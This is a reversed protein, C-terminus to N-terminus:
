NKTRLNNLSMLLAGFGILVAAFKVMPGLIPIIGVLYYIVLGVVFTGLPSANKVVKEGVWSMVYIRSIYMLLFYLIFLLIGLPIGVVTIMLTVALIPILILGLFGIALSFLTRTEITNVVSAHFKPLFYILLAGIVLTTVFSLGTTFIDFGTIFAQAGRQSVEPKQVENRQVEGSISAEPSIVAEEDSWYTLNGAVAAASSLRLNGVGAEINGGVTNAINLNGVGARINGAVPAFIDVNGGAVAINRAIQADDTVTINGGAFSLNDGVSGTVIINGGVIRVDDTVTGSILVTGGAVLLDGNITGDVVVQGGAIYADGNVTGSVEVTSGAAFYDDEVTETSPLIVLENADPSQAVVTVPLLLSLGFILGIIKRM